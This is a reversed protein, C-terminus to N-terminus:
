RSTRVLNAIASPPHDAWSSRSIIVPGEAGERYARAVLTNSRLYEDVAARFNRARDRMINAGNPGIEGAVLRLDVGMLAAAELNVIDLGALAGVEIGADWAALLAPDAGGVVADARVGEYATNIAPLLATDRVRQSVCSSMSLMAVLVLLFRM